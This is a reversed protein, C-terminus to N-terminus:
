TRDKDEGLRARVSAEHAIAEDMALRAATLRTSRIKQNLRNSSRWARAADEWELGASICRDVARALENLATSVPTHTSVPMPAGVRLERM